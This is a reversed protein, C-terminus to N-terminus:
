PSRTCRRAFGFCCCLLFLACSRMAEASPATKCGQMAEVEDDGLEGVSKLSRHGDVSSGTALAGGSGGGGSFPLVGSAPWYQPPTRPGGSQLGGPAVGTSGAGADDTSGAPSAHATGTGTSQLEKLQAQLRAVDKTLADAKATASTATKRLAREIKNHQVHERMVALMRQLADPKVAVASSSPGASGLAAKLENRLEFLSM